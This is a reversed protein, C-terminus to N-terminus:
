YGEVCPYHNPLIGAGVRIDLKTHAEINNKKSIVTLHFTCLKALEGFRDINVGHHDHEHAGLGLHFAPRGPFHVM